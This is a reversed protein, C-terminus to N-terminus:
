EFSEHTGSSRYLRVRPTVFGEMFSLLFGNKDQLFNIQKEKVGV